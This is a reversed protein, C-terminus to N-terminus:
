SVYMGIYKSNTNEHSTHTDFDYNKFTEGFMRNNCRFLSIREGTVMFNIDKANVM